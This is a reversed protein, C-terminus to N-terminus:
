DCTSDVAKLRHLTPGKELVGEPGMFSIQFDNEGIERTGTSIKGLTPSTSENSWWAATVLVLCPLAIYLGPKKCM